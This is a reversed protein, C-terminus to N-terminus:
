LNQTMGLHDRRQLGANRQSLNDLQGVWSFASRSFSNVKRAKPKAEPDSFFALLYRLSRTKEIVDDVYQLWQGPISDGEVTVSAVTCWSAVNEFCICDWLPLCANIRLHLFFDEMANRTADFIDALSKHKGGYYACGKGNDTGQAMAQAGSSVNSAKSKYKQLLVPPFLARLPLKCPRANDGRNRKYRRLLFYIAYSANALPAM